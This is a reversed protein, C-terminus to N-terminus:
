ARPSTRSHGRPPDSKSRSRAPRVVSLQSGSITRHAAGTDNVPIRSERPCSYSVGVQTWDWNDPRTGDGSVIADHPHPRAWYYIVDQQQHWNWHRTVIWTFKCTFLNSTLIKHQNIHLLPHPHHFPLFSACHHRPIRGNQIGVCATM